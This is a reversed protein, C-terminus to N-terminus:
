SGAGAPALRHAKSTGTEEAEVAVSAPLMCIYAMIPRVDGRLARRFLERQREPDLGRASRTTEPTSPPSDATPAFYPWESKACVRLAIHNPTPVYRDHISAASSPYSGLKLNTLPSSKSQTSHDRVPAPCAPQFM